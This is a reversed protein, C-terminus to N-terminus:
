GTELSEGRDSYGKHPHCILRGLFCRERTVEKSLLGRLHSFPQIDRVLQLRLDGTLCKVDEGGLGKGFANIQLYIELLIPNNIHIYVGINAYVQFYLYVFHTQLYIYKPVHCLNGLAPRHGGGGGTELAADLM